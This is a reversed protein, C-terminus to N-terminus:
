LGPAIGACPGSCARSPGAWIVDLSITELTRVHPMFRSRICTEADLRSGDGLRIDYSEDNELTLIRQDTNSVVLTFTVTKGSTNVITELTDGFYGFVGIYDEKKVVLHM